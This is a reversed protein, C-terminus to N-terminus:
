FDKLKLFLDSFKSEKRYFVPPQGLPADVEQWGKESGYEKGSWPSVWLGGPFYVRWKEWESKPQYVPAVLLDKGLLFQYKLEHVVPDDEYHLYMARILPIGREQYEDSLYLFYDKLHTHMHSMKGFHELIEDDYDFQIDDYEVRPRTGEHTRMYPTFVALETWRMFMEKTRVIEPPWNLFGGIDFNYYGIGILGLSIGAPIVTALGDYKGWNAIQDGAWHLM